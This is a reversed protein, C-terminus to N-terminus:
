FLLLRGTYYQTVTTVPQLLAGILWWEHSGMTTLNFNMHFSRTKLVLKKEKQNEMSRKGVVVRGSLQCLNADNINNNCMPWRWKNRVWHQSLPLPLPPQIAATTTDFDRYACPLNSSTKKKKQWRCLQRRLRLTAATNYVINSSCEQHLCGMTKTTTTTITLSHFSMNVTKTKHLWSTTNALRKLRLPQSM